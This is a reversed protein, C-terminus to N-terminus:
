CDVQVVRVGKLAADFDLVDQRPTGAQTCSLAVVLTVIGSALVGAKHAM